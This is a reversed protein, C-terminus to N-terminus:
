ALSRRRRRGALMVGGLALLLAASPEPIVAFDSNHNLVAWVSTVGGNVDVGWAGIYNALITGRLAQFEAFTGDFQSAYLPNNGTNGDRANVWQNGSLWGLLADPETATFSLEM